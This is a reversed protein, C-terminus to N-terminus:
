FLRKKPRPARIREPIVDVLIIDAGIRKICPWPIVFDDTKGFLGLMKCPGPVVIALIRGDDLNLVLDYVCGLRCGDAANIVEKCRLESYRCEM